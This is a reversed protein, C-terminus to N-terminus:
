YNLPPTSWALSRINKYFYVEAEEQFLENDPLIQQSPEKEDGELVPLLIVTPLLKSM